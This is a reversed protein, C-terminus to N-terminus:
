EIMLEISPRIWCNSEAGSDGFGFYCSGRDENDTMPAGACRVKVFQKGEIFTVNRRARKFAKRRGMKQYGAGQQAHKGAKDRCRTRHIVQRDPLVPRLFILERPEVKSRAGGILHQKERVVAGNADLKQVHRLDGGVLL